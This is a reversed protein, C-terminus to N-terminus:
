QPLLDESIWYFKGWPQTEILSDDLIAKAIKEYSLNFSGQMAILERDSIKQTNDFDNVSHSKLFANNTPLGTVLKLVYDLNSNEKLAKMAGKDGLYNTLIQKFADKLNKRLETGTGTVNLQGISAKMDSLEELTMYLVKKYLGTGDEISNTTLSTYGPIFFQYNNGKYKKIIDKDKVQKGLKFLFDNVVANMKIKKNGIGNIKSSLEQIDADVKHETVKMLSDVKEYILNTSFYDSISSYALVGQVTSGEPYDLKYCRTGFPKFQSSYLDSKTEKSVAIANLNYKEKASSFIQIMKNSFSLFSSSQNTKVQFSMLHTNTQVMLDSIKDISLGDTETGVKGGIHIIINTQKDFSQTEKFMRLARYLGSYLASNNKESPKCSTKKSQSELFDTIKDADTTLPVINISLDEGCNKDEMDRYVVAGYKYKFYDEEDLDADDSNILAIREKIKTVAIKVAAVYEEMGTSGDVLVILNIKRKELININAEKAIIANEASTSILKKDGDLLATVFGTQVIGDVGTESNLIPFRKENPAMRTEYPDNNWTAKIGTNGSKFAKADALDTFISTKTNLTKRKSVADYNWNPELCIRDGWSQLVDRHVWGLIDNKLQRDSTKYNLGVLVTNHVLDEKYVYLFQFMRISNDSLASLEPNKYLQIVGNNVKIRDDNINEQKLIPLIRKSLQKENVVGRFWLLLKNKPAWGYDIINNVLKSQKGKKSRIEDLQISNIDLKYIHVFEGEDESVWFCELYDMKKFDGTGNKNSYTPNNVRDSCVVWNKADDREVTSASIEGNPNNIYKIPVKLVNVPKQQAIVCFANLIFFLFFLPKM